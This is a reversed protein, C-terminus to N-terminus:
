TYQSYKRKKKVTVYDMIHLVASTYFFIFDAVTVFVTGYFVHMWVEVAFAAVFDVAEFFQIDRVDRERGVEVDTGNVKHQFTDAGVATFLRLHSNLRM